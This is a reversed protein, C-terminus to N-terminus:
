IFNLTKRLESFTLTDHNTTFNNKFIDESKKIEIQNIFFLQQINASRKWRLLSPHTASVLLKSFQRVELPYRPNSDRERRM